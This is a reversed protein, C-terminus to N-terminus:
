NPLTNRVSQSRSDPTAAKGCGSPSPPYCDIPLDSLITQQDSPSLSPSQLLSCASMYVAYEERTPTIGHWDSRCPQIQHRLAWTVYARPTGGPLSMMSATIAALISLVYVLM